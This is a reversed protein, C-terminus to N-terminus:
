KRRKKRKRAGKGRERDAFEAPVPGKRGRSSADGALGGEAFYANRERVAKPTSSRRAGDFHPKGRAFGSPARGPAGDDPRIVKVRRKAQGLPRDPLEEEALAFDITREELHVGVCTVRIPDGIRYVKGTHEGVLIMEKEHFVYYDDTMYSLHVLGEITNPLRVFLGFSTVGSVVGDFTEGVHAQMYEAKKYAETEWEAEMAVRERTSTHKAAEDLWEVLREREAADPIRGHFAYRRLLRHVILDPYRRIPATFHTYHTAALGFHGLNEAAYRARQMSRLLLTSIVMEEPEGRAEELVAQLQKPTVGGPRARVVYGLNALFEFFGRMKEPDPPEHVRYLFPLDAAEAWEAIAENAVLMFDEILREGEGRERRHVDIPKGDDGLVIRAEDLDFDIAGRARRRARIKRALEAMAFLNERFREYVERSTFADEAEEGSLLRNVSTYTMRARSRIVSPFFEYRLRRGETDFDLLVSIALRDEGPNLSAIGNSLTHPLMPIVRDVLYVSTGRLYAERDLATGERVYASVDAIHVGLRWGGRPLPEIHVADDFDKADEGDITFVDIERLDRRGVLDEERVRDPLRAAEELVDEPFAEPLEYKRVISLIDVGPDDKHGLIEVVRGVAPRRDDPYELIEVVVKHGPVAGRRERPAVTIAGPIRLDDPVVYGLRAEEEYTGVVRRFARRLIRVVEGEVKRGNGGTGSKRVLVVDGPWAGHLNAAPVYVDPEGERDPLLFAYGRTHVELRGRVLNMQEPLGYRRSRTRVIEGEEVLRSLVERVAAEPIGRAALLEVLESSALPRAAQRVAGVVAQAVPDESLVM